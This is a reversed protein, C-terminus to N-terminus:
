LITALFHKARLSEKEMNKMINENDRVNNKRKM